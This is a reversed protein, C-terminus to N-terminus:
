RATAARAPTALVPIEAHRVISEAVSGLLLRRIGRRGHTGIVIASANYNGAAELIAEVAAGEAVATDATVQIGRAQSLASSLLADAQDHMERLITDPNQNHKAARLLVDKVDIAHCFRVTGKEARALRLALEIAADSPDSADVAVLLKSIPTHQAGLVEGDPSRLLFVPAYGSRLVGEATSGLFFREAGGRGHTGMIVACVPHERLYDVIAATPSGQFEVTDFATVGAARLRESAGALMAKSEDTLAQLLPGPDYMCEPTPLVAATYDV